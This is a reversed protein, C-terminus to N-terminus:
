YRTLNDDLCFDDFMMLVTYVIRIFVINAM